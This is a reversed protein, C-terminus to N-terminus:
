AAVFIFYLQCRFRIQSKSILAQKNIGAQFLNSKKLAACFCSRKNCEMFNVKFEYDLYIPDYCKKVELMAYITM